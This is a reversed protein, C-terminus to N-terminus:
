DLEAEARLVVVQQPESGRVVAPKVIRILQGIGAKGDLEHVAPNFPVRDGAKNLIAVRRYRAAEQVWQLVLNSANKARRAPDALEGQAASELRDFSRTLFDMDQLARGLAEDADSWAAEAMATAAPPLGTKPAAASAPRAAAGPAREHTAASALLLAALLRGAETPTAAKALQMLPGDEARHNRAALQRAHKEIADISRRVTSESIRRGKSQMAGLAQDLAAALAHTTLAAELLLKELADTPTRKDEVLYAGAIWPVAQQRSIALLGRGVPELDKPHVKDALPLRAAADRLDLKAAWSPDQALRGILILCTVAHAAGSLAEKILRRAFPEADPGEALAQLRRESRAAILGKAFGVFEKVPAECRSREDSASRSGRAM